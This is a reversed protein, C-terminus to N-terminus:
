ERVSKEAEPSFEFMNKLTKNAGRLEVVIKPESNHSIDKIVWYEDDEISFLEMDFDLASILLKGYIDWQEKSLQKDKSTTAFSIFDAFDKTRREMDQTRKETKAHHIIDIQEQVHPPIPMEYTNQYATSEEDTYIDIRLATIKGTTAETVESIRVSGHEPVSFAKQIAPPLQEALLLAQINDPYAFDILTRIKVLEQGEKTRRDIGRRETDM